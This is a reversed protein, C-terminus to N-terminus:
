TRDEASFDSKAVESSQYQARHFHKTSYQHTFGRTAQAVCVDKRNSYFPICDHLLRCEVSEKHYFLAWPFATNKFCSQDSVYSKRKTSIFDDLGM